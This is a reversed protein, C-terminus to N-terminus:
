WSPPKNFVGRVDSLQDPFLSSEFFSQRMKKTSRAADKLQSFKSKSPNLIHVPINLDKDVTSIPAILDSDNSIVVAMDMKKNYADNLLCTALNVDSGKEESRLVPAFQLRTRNQDDRMPLKVHLLKFISVFFKTKTFTTTKNGNKFYFNSKKSLVPMVRESEQYQGYIINLNPITRLARLYIQQRIPQDMDNPRSKVLATFYKIEGISYNPLPFYQKCLENVNLWKCHPFRDKLACYYLNFGDIYFNVIM